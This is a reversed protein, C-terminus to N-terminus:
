EDRMFIQLLENLFNRGLKTPKIMDSTEIIFKKDKAESLEKHISAIKLNTQKEFLNKEFGNNLRLANMMFEFILSNKTIFKTESFFNKNEICSIYKTPNKFCTFRQRQNKKLTIKSHAGAGIGLYDGFKWYNLNHRCQKNQKAYASTEYHQFDKKTLSNAIVDSMDASDDLSPQRPPFKHFFTNPEITLHYYSIHDPSISLATDIDNQLDHMTQNPLAYMLDLNINNFIARAQEAAAIAQKKDHVRELSKLHNDNFSQIGLSIRNVGVQKYGKFFDQDITGPNAELSIECDDKIFFKNSICNLIRDITQPALLSPTGGGFFISHIVKDSSLNSTKIQEILSETYVGENDKISKNRLAYSNFDCYPCKHICWPIHVYISLHDSPYDKTSTFNLM